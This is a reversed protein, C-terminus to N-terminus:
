NGLKPKSVWGVDIFSEIYLDNAQKDFVRMSTAVWEEAAAPKGARFEMAAKAFYYAPTDSPFQIKDMWVTAEAQNGEMLFTMFVKFILLERRAGSAGELMKEFHGRADPYKQQLFLLEGLNFRPAFYEPAASSAKTFYTIAKEFDRQSTAVAGRLNLAVPTELSIADLQDLRRLVRDYNELRFDEAADRLIRLYEPSLKGAGGQDEAGSASGVWGILGVLGILAAWV